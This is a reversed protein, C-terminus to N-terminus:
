MKPADCDVLLGVVFCAYQPLVFVCGYIRSSKCIIQLKMCRTQSAGEAAHLLEEEHEEFGPLLALLGFVETYKLIDECVVGSLPKTHFTVSAPM